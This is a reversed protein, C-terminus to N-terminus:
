QSQQKKKKELLLRCVLDLVTEHARLHTYSVPGQGGEVDGGAGLKPAGQGPVELAVVPRPQQDGVVRGIREQEGIVEVDEFPADDGLGAADLVNPPTGGRGINRREGPEVQQAAGVAASRDVQVVLGPLGEDAGIGDGVPRHQHRDM